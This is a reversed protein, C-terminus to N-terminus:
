SATASKSKLEVGQERGTAAAFERRFADQMRSDTFYQEFRKRGERGMDIRKSRNDALLAIARALADPNGPPVLIGTRGDDVVEKLGFSRSAIVPRGARMAEAAVLCFGEKSTVQVAIGGLVIREREVSPCLVLDAEGMQNHVDDRFGLFHIRKEIGLDVARQKLLSLYSGEPDEGVVRLTVRTILKPSLLALAELLHHVGKQPSLRGVFLLVLNETHFNIPWAPLDPLGNHVTVTKERPLTPLQIHLDDRVAESVTVIRIAHRMALKALRLNERSDGGQYHLLIPVGALKAAALALLAARSEAAYILDVRHIRLFRWLRFSYGPASRLIRLALQWPPLRM